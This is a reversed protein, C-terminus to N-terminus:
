IEVKNQDLVKRIEAYGKKTDESGDESGLTIDFLACGDKYHDETDDFDVMDVYKIDKIKECLADAKDYTINAVMVRSTSFTVFEDEMLSLGQRTETDSPLYETIDNCVKIWNQSFLSFVVAIAYILMVINRKDVILTAAKEMFTKEGTEKKMDEIGKM